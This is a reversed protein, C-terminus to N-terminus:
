LDGWEYQCVAVAMLAATEVRMIRYGCSIISFGSERIMDLEYTTFSGEPGVLILISDPRKVGSFVDRMHQPPDAGEWLCIKFYKDARKLRPAERSSSKLRPAERSSSKQLPAEGALSKLRPDERSSPKHLPNEDQLSRQWPDEGSSPKHLLEEGQSLKQSPQERPLLKEGQSLDNGKLPGKGPLPGEGRVLGEGHLFDELPQPPALCPIDTRGSQKAAEIVIRDWRRWRHHSLSTTRPSFSRETQLPYICDVGLETAKQLIIEIASYRPIAQALMIRPRSRPPPPEENLIKLTARARTMELIEARYRLGSGDTVYICDGPELRMVRLHHVEDGALTVPSSLIRESVFFLRPM